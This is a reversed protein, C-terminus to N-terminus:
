RKKRSTTKKATTKRKSTSTSTVTSARNSTGVSALGALGKANEKFFYEYLNFGVVAGVVPGLVYTGWGAGSWIHWARAGLALSPNILGFGAVSAILVAVAFGVGVFGAFAHGVKARHLAAAWVLSFVLAGVAEATFTKLSFAPQSAYYAMVSNSASNFLYAFLEYAVWAGFLQVVIYAVAPLTKIQKATWMGLTIAPNLHAGSNSVFVFTVAALALGAAIAIFFPVGISSHQLSLVVYTLAGTGLFEALLVAFSNGVGNKGFM